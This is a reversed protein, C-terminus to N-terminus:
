AGLDRALAVLLRVGFGTPGSGVYQRGVDWATGAIDLHAWPKGDVFEELFSGAYITGAKRKASANTLDADKREVSLASRQGNRVHHSPTPWSWPSGRPSVSASM